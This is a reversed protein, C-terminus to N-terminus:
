QACNLLVTDVGGNLIFVYLTVCGINTINNHGISGKYSTYYFLEEYHKGSEKKDPEGLIQIVAASSKGLLDMNKEVDIAMEVPRKEQWVQPDFNMVNNNLHNVELLILVTIFVPFVLTILVFKRRTRIYLFASIAITAILLIGYYKILIENDEVNQIPDCCGVSEWRLWSIKVYLLYVVITYCLLGLIWQVIKYFNM